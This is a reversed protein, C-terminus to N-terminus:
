PLCNMSRGRRRSGRVREANEVGSINIGSVVAKRKERFDSLFCLPDRQDDAVRAPFVPAKLGCIRVIPMKSILWGLM